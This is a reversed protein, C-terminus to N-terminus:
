SNEVIKTIEKAVAKTYSGIVEHGALVPKATINPITTGLKKIHASIVVPDFRGYFMTIPLKLVSVDHLSTQNIISAELAALYSAVNDESVNLAKNALGLQVALPSVGILQTPYKKATRYLSRLLEDYDPFLKKVTSPPEYFPPSCLVLQRVAFPYRKATEVAVLSGLSHGVLIPPQFLRMRVLTRALSRAQTKANYTVWGPKPSHGFGLLDVGIVRVNNPLLPILEDWAKASNGIGHILVITAKPKKPSRFRTTHLMYPVRLWRHFIIDFVNNVEKTYRTM